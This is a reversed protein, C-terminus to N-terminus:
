ARNMKKPSSLDSVPWLQLLKPNFSAPNTPFRGQSLSLPQLDRPLCSKTATSPGLQGSPNNKHEQEQNRDICLLHLVFPVSVRMPNSKHPRPWDSPLADLADNPLERNSAAAEFESHNRRAKAWAHPM